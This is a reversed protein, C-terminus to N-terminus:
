VGSYHFPFQGLIRLVVEEIVAIIVNIDNINKLILSKNVATTKYKKLVM